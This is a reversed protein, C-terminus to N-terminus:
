KSGGQGSVSSTVGPARLVLYGDREFVVRYGHRELLRVRQVQEAISSFSWVRWRVSAVVWPPYLPSAGDGDWLLVTDRSTLQPGVNSVAEVTVGSPVAAAAEVAAAQQPTRHYFQPTFLRGLPIYPVLAVAIVAMAAVCSLAVRPPVAGGNQQQRARRTWRNLRVAGDVAAVVLAVVLYASYQGILGWWAPFRVNLMRELLLPVVPLVAPSLLSLFLFPALLWLYTDVKVGPTVLIHLTDIPHAVIHGAAQSANSGLEGYGWYYNSRGGFAPILVYVSVLAAIIGAVVLILGLLRQRPVTAQGMLLDQVVLFLGIGAVFLGMDEKVLLLLGLAILATRWRGAQLREFAVATLVPAFAVEHFDFIAAQALPWSLAYAVSVCYAAAVATRGSREGGFARRTYVWLPPVALAFLVAQAVLLTQPGNDVWYFPALIAIIPSFHDGLVSFNPGFGNHDGKIISIGPELHAYSRVAQDFIVMDYSSTVLTHQLTLSVLCYIGTMGATVGLVPLAHPPLRRRTGTDSQSAAVPKASDVSL